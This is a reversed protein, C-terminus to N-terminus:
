RRDLIVATTQLTHTHSTNREIKISSQIYTDRQIKNSQPSNSVPSAKRDLEKTTVWKTLNQQQLNFSKLNLPSTDWVCACRKTSRRHHLTVLTVTNVHLWHPTWTDFELNPLGLNPLGKRETGDVTSKCWLFQIEPTHGKNWRSHMEVVCFFLDTAWTGDVFHKFWLFTNGGDWRSCTCINGQM